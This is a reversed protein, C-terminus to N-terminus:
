LREKRLFALSVLTALIGGMLTFVMRELPMITSNPMDSEHLLLLIFTTIFVAGLTYNHKLYFIFFYICVVMAASEVIFGLNLYLIASGLLCGALTGLTREVVRKLTARRGVKLVIVATLPIWYVHPYDAIYYRIIFFGAILLLSLEISYVFLYERLGLITRDPEDPPPPLKEPSPAFIMKHNRYRKIYVALGLLLELVFGAVAGAATMAVM